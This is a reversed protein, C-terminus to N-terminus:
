KKGEHFISFEHHEPYKLSPMPLYDGERVMWRALAIKLKM